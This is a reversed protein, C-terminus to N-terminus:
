QDFQEVLDPGGAYLHADAVVGAVRLV